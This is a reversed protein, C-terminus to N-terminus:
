RAREDAHTEYEGVFQHGATLRRSSGSTSVKASGSMAPVISLHRTPRWLKSRDRHAIMAPHSTSSYVALGCRQFHSACHESVANGIGIGQFDPLVVTRHERMVTGRKRHPYSIWASFAVPRGAWLAAFCRARPSLEGSLYHHARFIRWADRDCEVIELSVVPRRRLERWQFEVVDPQLVWDPQLWDLIDYHCSALVIRRKAARIWKAVAASTVQAVTRDVVSTFEDIVIPDAPEILSRALTVRFQEGNSLASFSRLWSPPSSLGVSSLAATVHKISADASFGDLVSADEPWKFVPPEGFLRRLVTSKGCGSPGVILGINWPRDDLPAAISWSRESVKMPALDFM